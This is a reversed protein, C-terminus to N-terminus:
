GSGEKLLLFVILTVAGCLYILTVTYFTVIRHLFAKV